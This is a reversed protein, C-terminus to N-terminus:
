ARKSRCILETDIIKLNHMERILRIISLIYYILILVWIYTSYNEGRKKYLLVGGDSTQKLRYHNNVHNKGGYTILWLYTLLPIFLALFGYNTQSTMLMVVLLTISIIYTTSIVLIARITRKRLNHIFEINLKSLELNKESM